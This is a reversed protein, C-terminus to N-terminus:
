PTGTAPMGLSAAARRQEPGPALGLLDARRSELEISKALQPAMTALPYVSKDSDSGEPSGDHFSKEAAEAMNVNKVAFSKMVAAGVTGGVASGLTGYSLNTRWTWVGLTATAESVADGIGTVASTIQGVALVIDADGSLSSARALDVMISSQEAYDVMAPVNMGAALAANAHSHLAAGVAEGCRLRTWLQEFGVARTKEEVQISGATRPSHFTKSGAAYSGDSTPTALAYAVNRPLLPSSAGVSSMTRLLDTRTGANMATRLSFCFDLGNIALDPTSACDLSPYAACTRPLSVAGAISESTASNILRLTPARDAATALDANVSLIDPDVGEISTNRYVGYRITASRADPLGIDRYPLFGDEASCDGIGNSTPAPCPLRHHAVSFALIADDARQLLSRQVQDKTQDHTNSIWRILLVSIIGIVVLSVTLEILSFGTQGSKENFRVIHNM